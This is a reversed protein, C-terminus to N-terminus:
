VPPAHISHPILYHQQFPHARRAALGARSIQLRNPLLDRDLLVASPPGAGRLSNRVIGPSPDPLAYYIGGGTSPILNSADEDPSIDALVSTLAMPQLMMCLLALVLVLGFSRRMRQVKAM